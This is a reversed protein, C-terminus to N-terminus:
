TAAMRARAAQIWPVLRAAMGAEAEPTAILDNRIELMVSAIGNAAGHTDLTHAVGDTASYPQNLQIDHTMGAPICAMMAQAASADSGHLIGIEVARPQGKFVPTFSHVTVILDLTGRQNAIQRSLAAEFPRYIGDIREARAEAGLSQNGPITTDESIEPIASAAEPPRNCDYLLRSVGGYVLPANCSAAMARAVGLAGPDWAIHSQLKDESLGLTGFADPIRCSAHECVVLVSGGDPGERHVVDGLDVTRIANGMQVSKKLSGVETLM